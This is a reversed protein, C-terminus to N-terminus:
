FRQDVSLSRRALPLDDAQDPNREMGSNNQRCGRDDSNTAPHALVRVLAGQETLRISAWRTPVAVRPPLTVLGEGGAAFAPGAEEDAGTGGEGGEDIAVGVFCDDRHAV